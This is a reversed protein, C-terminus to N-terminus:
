IKKQRNRGFFGLLLLVAATGVTLVLVWSLRVMWIMWQAHGLSTAYHPMPLIVTAVSALIFAKAALGILHRPQNKGTETM